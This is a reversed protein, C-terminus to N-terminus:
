TYIYDRKDVLVYDDIINHRSYDCNIHANHITLVDYRFYNHFRLLYKIYRLYRLYKFYGLIHRNQYVFHTLLFLQFMQVLINEKKQHMNEYFIKHFYM